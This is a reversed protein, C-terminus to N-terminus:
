ILRFKTQHWILRFLTIVIWAQNLKVLNLLWEIENLKLPINPFEQSCRDFWIFCQASFNGSSFIFRFEPSCQHTVTSRFADVCLFNYRFRILDVPFWITNVMKSQNPVLCFDTQIWIFVMKRNIEFSKSFIERHTCEM